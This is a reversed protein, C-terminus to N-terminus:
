RGGGGCVCAIEDALGSKAPSGGRGGSREACLLASPRSGLYGSPVCVAATKSADEPINFKEKDGGLLETVRPLNMFSNSGSFLSAPERCVQKVM